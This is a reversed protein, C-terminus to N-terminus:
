TITLQGMEIENWHVAKKHAQLNKVTKECIDCKIKAIPNHEEIPM